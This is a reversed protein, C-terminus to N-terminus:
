KRKEDKKDEEKEQAILNKLFRARNAWPNKGQPDLRIANQFDADAQDPTGCRYYIEGRNVYPTIDTPDMELAVSYEALGEGWRDTRQYIAGLITHHYPNKHDLFALGKFVTEAEKLKGRQFQLYGYETIEGILEPPIGQVAAWTIEGEIYREMLKVAREADESSINKLIQNVKELWESNKKFLEPNKQREEEEIKKERELEEKSLGADPDLIEEPM